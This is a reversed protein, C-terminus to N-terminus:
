SETSGHNPPIIVVFALFAALDTGCLTVSSIFLSVYVILIEQNVTIILDWLLSLTLDEVLPVHALTVQKAQTIKISDALTPGSTNVHLVM